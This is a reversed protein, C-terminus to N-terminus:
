VSFGIHRAKGKVQTTCLRLDEEEPVWEYSRGVLLHKNLTLPPLVVMHSCNAQVLYSKDYFMIKEIPLGLEDAFGQIEANIGPCALEYENQLQRFTAFGYKKPHVEHSAIINPLSKNTSKLINAQKRGIECSTGEVTIHQFVGKRIIYKESM